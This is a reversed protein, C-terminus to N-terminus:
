IPALPIMINLVEAICLPLDTDGETKDSSDTESVQRLPLDLDIHAGDNTHFLRKHQPCELHRPAGVVSHPPWAIGQLKCKGVSNTRALPGFWQTTWTHCTIVWGIVCM